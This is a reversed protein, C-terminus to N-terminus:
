YNKEDNFFMLIYIVYSIFRLRTVRTDSCMILM